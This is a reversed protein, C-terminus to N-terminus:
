SPRVKTQTMILATLSEALEGLGQRRLAEQAYVAAELLTWDLLCEPGACEFASVAFLAWKAGEAVAGTRIYYMSRYSSLVAQPLVSTTPPVYVCAVM